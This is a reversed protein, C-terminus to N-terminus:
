VLELKWARSTDNWGQYLYRGAVDVGAAVVVVQGVATVVASAAQSKRQELNTDLNFTLHSTSYSHRYFHRHRLDSDAPQGICSSAQM